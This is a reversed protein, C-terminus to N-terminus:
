YPFLHADTDRLGVGDLFLLHLGLKFALEFFFLDSAFEGVSWGFYTPLITVFLIYLLMGGRVDLGSAVVFVVSVWLSVNLVFPKSFLPLLFTNPYASDLIFSPTSGIAFFLTVADLWTSGGLFARDVVYYGFIVNRSIFTSLFYGGLFWGGGCLDTWVSFYGNVSLNYADLVNHFTPMDVCTWHFYSSIRSIFRWSSHRFRSSFFIIVTPSQM